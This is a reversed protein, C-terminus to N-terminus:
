AVAIKALELRQRIRDIVPRFFDIDAAVAKVSAMIAAHDRECHLAIRDFAWGAQTRLWWHLIKRPDISYTHRNREVLIFPNDLGHEHSIAEAVELALKADCAQFNNREGLAQDCRAIQAKYGNRRIHLEAILASTPINTLDHM